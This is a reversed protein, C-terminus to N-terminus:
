EDDKPDSEDDEVIYFVFGCECAAKGNGYTTRIIEGCRPCYNASSTYGSVFGNM